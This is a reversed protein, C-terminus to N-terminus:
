TRRLPEACRLDRDDSGMGRDRVFRRFGLSQKVGHGAVYAAVGGQQKRARSIQPARVLGVFGGLHHEGGRGRGAGHVVRVFPPLLPTQQRTLQEIGAFHAGREPDCALGGHRFLFPQPDLMQERRAPDREAKQVIRCRCLRQKGAGNLHGLVRGGPRAGMVPIRPGALRETLGGLCAGIVFARRPERARIVTLDRMRTHAACFQAQRRRRLPM